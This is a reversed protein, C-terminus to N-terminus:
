SQNIVDDRNMLTNILLTWSAAEVSDISEDHPLDGTAHLKEAAEENSGYQNRAMDLLASLDIRDAEAAPHGVVRLFAEDMIAADDRTEPTTGELLSEALVRAAEVHQVDNLLVLAQLPTNTRERVVSCEERNPANFASLAPHHATRKWFTYVSRRHIKEVPDQEFERTNSGAFAVPKWVGLPQYPKVSEGGITRDLVGSVALAQDRIVEADLRRRPGASFFRNEPDLALLEGSREASQQYTASTVMLRIMAKLDWGSEVFRVALFDLLEPHTPKEGLIGFDGATKVIGTGFFSQWVRNMTVRATMPHDPQFLWQALDLRDPTGDSKLEPFVAPTGAMVQEGLNDYEGRIRVNAMAPGDLEKMVQTTPNRAYLYDHRKLTAMYALNAAIGKEDFRLRYLDAVLAQQEGSLQDYAPRKKALERLQFDNALLHIEDVSLARSFIRLDSLGGTVASRGITLEKPLHEAFETGTMKSDRRREYRREGDVYFTISSNDRGGSYRIAVHQWSRPKLPTEGPMLSNVTVGEADTISFTFGGGGSNGSIAYGTAKLKKEKNEPANQRILDQAIVKDPSRVWYSFTVESDPDFTPSFPLTFGGREPFRVGRTGNPNAEAPVANGISVEGPKGNVIATAKGDKIDDLLLDLALAEDAVPHRFQISGPKAQNWWAKVKSEDAASEAAALLQERKDLLAEWEGAHEPKPVVVTPHHDRMNGDMAPTENNAFFATLSYYEKQSIPDYKHDHCAACGATLGMFVTSMTDARDSMYRVELEAPIAGGEATTINNRNFGTAILQDRTPNKLLDGALQEISFEDFSKNENFANIVWDRYPWMERFNDLHMGHTDAFRSADLWFRARHEGYHSSELLRDVYDEYATASEDKLFTELEEPTPPLGIIDLAARRALAYRDAEPNPTLGMEDMKALIFADIENHGWGTEPVEPDAVPEFSWHGAWEAGGEIWAIIKAKDEDSMVKHFEPPPMISDPDEDFIRIVAESAEADGPKVAFYGGLDAFAGEATDLRLDAKRSNEDPGHCHFCNDALIPRIDNNFDVVLDPDFSANEIPTPPREKSGGAPLTAIIRNYKEQPEEEVALDAVPPAPRTDAVALELGEDSTGSQTFLFLLGIAAAAVCAAAAWKIWVSSQGATGTGATPLSTVNSPSVSIGHDVAEEEGLSELLGIMRCEQKWRVVRDPSEKLLTWLRDHEWSTLERESFAALLNDFERDDGSTSKM